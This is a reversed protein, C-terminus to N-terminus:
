PHERSFPNAACAAVMRRGEAIRCTPFSSIASHVARERQETRSRWASPEELASHRRFRLRGAGERRGRSRHKKNISYSRCSSACGGNGRGIGRFRCDGSPRAGIIRREPSFPWNFKESAAPNQPRALSLRVRLRSPAFCLSRAAKRRTKMKASPMERARVGRPNSALRSSSDLETKRRAKADERSASKRM